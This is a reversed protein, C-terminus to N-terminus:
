AGAPPARPCTPRAAFWVVGRDVGERSLGPNGALADVWQAPAAVRAAGTCSFDFRQPNVHVHVQDLSALVIRYGSATDM